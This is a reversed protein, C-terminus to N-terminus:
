LIVLNKARPAGEVFAQQPLLTQLNAAGSPPSAIAIREVKGKEKKLLAYTINYAGNTAINAKLADGIAYVSLPSMPLGTVGGRLAIVSAILAVFLSLSRAVIARSLKLAALRRAVTYVPISILGLLLSLVSIPYLYKNFAQAVLADGESLFDKIEYSLHRGADTFYILDGVSLLSASFWSLVLLTLRYKPLHGFVLIFLLAFFSYLAGIALDFKGGWLLARWFELNDVGLSSPFLFQWYALKISIATLVISLLLFAYLNFACRFVAVM